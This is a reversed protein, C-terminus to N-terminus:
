RILRADCWNGHDAFDLDEGREVALVFQKYKSLDVRVAHAPDSGKIRKRFIEKGDGLIVFECDGKGKTEDDIGITAAFIPYNSDTNFTLRTVAHVGFGKEYVKGRLTLQRGRVSRNKQWKGVYAISREFVKTPETDSLFVLRDSRVDARMVTAWPLPIQKGGVPTIKAIGSKMADIDAWLLSGDTLHLQTKGILKPPKGIRALIVGFVRDLEVVREQKAYEFKVGKDTLGLFSGAISQVKKEIIVYLRDEGEAPLSASKDFTDFNAPLKKADTEVSFRIARVAEIPLKITGYAWQMTAFEEDMVITKALLVGGGALQVRLDADAAAKDLNRDIRRLNQIEVPSQGEGEFTVKGDAISLVRRTIKSGDLLISVDDAFTAEQTFGVTVVLAFIQVAVFMVLPAQLFVPAIM